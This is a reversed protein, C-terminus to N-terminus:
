KELYGIVQWWGREDWLFDEIYDRHEAGFDDDDPSPCGFMPEYFKSAYLVELSKQGIKQKGFLNENVVKGFIHDKPVHCELVKGNCTVWLPDGADGNKEMVKKIPISQCNEPVPLKKYKKPDTRPRTTLKKLFNIYNQDLGWKVAGETMIDVYRRSPIGRITSEDNSSDLKGMMSNMNGKSYVSCKQYSNDYLRAQAQIRKYGFCWETQDLSAMDKQSMLYLVGHFSKNPSHIAAAWGAKTLFQLEYDLLEAPIAKIPYLDRSQMSIPNMMSAISFYWTHTPNEETEM